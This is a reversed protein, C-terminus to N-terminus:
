KGLAKRAFEPMNPDVPREKPFHEYYEEMCKQQYDDWDPESHPDYQKVALSETHIGTTIPDVGGNAKIEQQRIRERHASLEEVNVYDYNEVQKISLTALPWTDQLVTQMSPMDPKTKFYVGDHVQLLVDAGSCKILEAMVQQETQQYAWAILKSKSIRGRESQLDTLYGEPIVGTKAAQALDTGIFDNILKQERMFEVMWPDSFLQDRLDKSYIIDSIAGQTWAGESNKFWCKTESKAGFSIATLVRKITKISYETTNGFVIQALHKRIRNKDRIGIYERTYSLQDRFPVSSYKWNFVSNNIDVSYCPGLAAERVTKHVNQLNPGSYYTRGFTSKSVVQPLVGGLESAIMHIIRATKLNNQIKKNPNNAGTTSLIYNQLNRLNIKVPHVLASESFQNYIAQVFDKRNGSAFIIDLPINVEVLSSEKKISNGLKIVKIMPYNANLWDWWYGKGGKGYRGLSKRLRTINFPLQNANIQDMSALHYGYYLEKIVADQYQKAKSIIDTFKCPLTQRAHDAVEEPSYYYAM